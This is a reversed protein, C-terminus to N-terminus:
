IVPYDIITMDKDISANCHIINRMLVFSAYKKKKWRNYRM